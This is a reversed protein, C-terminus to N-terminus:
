CVRRLNPWLAPFSSTPHMKPQGCLACRGNGPNHHAAINYSSPFRDLILQCLFIRVKLPIRAVLVDKFHAITAGESLKAYMSSVSYVRFQELLWVIMDHGTLLVMNEIIHRLPHWEALRAHDLTTQFGMQDWGGYVQVVSSM